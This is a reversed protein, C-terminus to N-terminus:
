TSYIRMKKRCVFSLHNGSTLICVDLAVLWGSCNRRYFILLFSFCHFFIGCWHQQQQQQQKGLSFSSVRFLLAVKWQSCVFWTTKKERIFLIRVIKKKKKVLLWTFSFLVESKKYICVVSFHREMMVGNELPKAMEGDKEREAWEDDHLCGVPDVITNIVLETARLLVTCKRKNQNYVLACYVMVATIYDATM